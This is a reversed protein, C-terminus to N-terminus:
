AVEMEILSLSLGTSLVLDEKMLNVKSPELSNMLILLVVEISM